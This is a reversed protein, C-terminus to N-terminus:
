TCNCVMYPCDTKKEDVAFLIDKDGVHIAYKVKYTDVMRKEDDM